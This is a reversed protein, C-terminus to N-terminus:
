IEEATTKICQVYDEDVKKWNWELYAKRKAEQKNSAEIIAEYYVRVEEESTVRFKKM